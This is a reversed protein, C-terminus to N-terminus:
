GSIIAQKNECKVLNLMEKNKKREKTKNLKLAMNSNGHAFLNNLQQHDVSLEDILRLHNVVMMQNASRHLVM